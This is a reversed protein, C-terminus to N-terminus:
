HFVLVALIVIAIGILLNLMGLPRIKALIAPNNEKKSKRLIFLISAVLVLLIVVLTLKAILLPMEGLVKWYPTILYFGSLLLLALGIQGMRGLIATKSMFSGREAPQLKSAVIGLFLNAIGAGLAMTLGIFHIILMLERM